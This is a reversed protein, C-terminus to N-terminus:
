GKQMEGARGAVHQCIANVLGERSESDAAFWRIREDRRFWTLQRKAFRRTNKKLEAVAAELSTRGELYDLIERYGLSQMANHGSGLGMQQLGKVEAVLGQELMEDVRAEIRRYLEQRAMYLGVLCASNGEGSERRSEWQTLTIGTHAFVELHRIVRRVNHPHVRHAAVPDISELREWLYRPGRIKALRQFINRLRHDARSPSFAYGDVVAQVFLGTGGVLLPLRGRARIQDIAQRARRQYDAVSFSEGPEVIDVLHHPVLARLESGPKATGVNLARYVQRSDASVIEGELRLALQVAIDTKGVATPGVVVLLPQTM